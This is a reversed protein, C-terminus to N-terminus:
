CFGTFDFLPFSNPSTLSFTQLFFPSKPQFLLRLDKVVILISSGLRMGDSHVVTEEVINRNPHMKLRQETECAGNLRQERPWVEM